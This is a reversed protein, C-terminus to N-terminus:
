PRLHDTVPLSGSSLERSLQSCVGPLSEPEEHSTLRHNIPTISVRNRALAWIDTGPEDELDMSGVVIWCYTRRTDYSGEVRRAALGKTYGSDALRTIDIGEIEALPLNPVNVNLLARRPLEGAEFRGALHSVIGAAVEFNLDKIDAISVAIAPLGSNHAQHAAGVTGSVMVDRGLNQGENIGSVVLDVRNEWIMRTGVIVCDAPTGEISYAEVGAVAPRAERVRLPQHLTISTSVGSQERDPAVVLVDAVRQLEGALAWLGPANIGDDNTVLINV